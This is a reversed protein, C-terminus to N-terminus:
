AVRMHLGVETIIWPGAISAPKPAGDALWEAICLEDTDPRVVYFEDRAQDYFQSVTDFGGADLRMQGRFEQHLGSYLDERIPIGSDTSFAKANAIPTPASDARFPPLTTPWIPLQLDPNVHIGPDWRTPSPSTPTPALYPKLLAVSFAGGGALTTVALLRVNDAGAPAALRAYGRAYSTPLGRIAVGAPATTLPLPSRNLVANAQRWELELLWAGQTAAYRGYAEFVQGPAQVAVSDSSIGVVAGAAGNGSSVLVARGPAGRNSEDVTLAGGSGSWGTAGDLFGANTLANSM